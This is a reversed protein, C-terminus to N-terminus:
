PSEAAPGAPQFLPLQDSSGRGRRRRIPTVNSAGAVKGTGAGPTGEVPTQPSASDGGLPSSEDPPAIASEAGSATPWATFKVGLMEELAHRPVRLAHGFEIVPLGCRGNAARWQRALGYAKNRGIRLLVAAEEVTLLDPLGGAGMRDVRLTEL